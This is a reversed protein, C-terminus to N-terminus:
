ELFWVVVNLAFNIENAALALKITNEVLTQKRNPNIENQALKFIKEYNKSNIYLEENSSDAQINELSNVWDAVSEKTPFQENIAIQALNNATLIESNLLFEPLNDFGMGKLTGPKRVEFLANGSARTYLNGGNRGVLDILEAKVGGISTDLSIDESVHFKVVECIAINAAGNTDGTTVMQLLKCEMQFLSEKVRKPSVIDSNIATFGAKKFEDIDSPYECSALNIQEVMSYSVANIVCEKNAMINNYSDKVTNDRGRRAPSFAVIPPNAGFANYFSFPALNNIRDDSITSVLAIPRPAIGGLLYQHVVNVPLEKPEFSIM